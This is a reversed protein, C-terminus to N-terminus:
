ERKGDGTRVSVREVRAWSAGVEFSALRIRSDIVTSLSTIDVESVEMGVDIVLFASAIAIKGPVRLAPKM